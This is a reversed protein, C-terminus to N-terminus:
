RTVDLGNSLSSLCTILGTFEAASLGTKDVFVLLLLSDEQGANMTGDLYWQQLGHGCKIVPEVYTVRSYCVTEEPLKHKMNFNGAGKPAQLLIGMLIWMLGQM